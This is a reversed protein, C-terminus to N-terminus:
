NPKAQPLFRTRKTKTKVNSGILVAGLAVSLFIGEALLTRRKRKVGKLINYLAIIGLSGLEITKKLNHNSHGQRTFAADMLSNIISFNKSVTKKIAGRGSHIGIASGAAKLGEILLENKINKRTTTNEM